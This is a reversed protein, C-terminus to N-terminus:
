VTINTQINPQTPTTHLSTPNEIGTGHPAAQYVAFVALTVSLNLAVKATVTAIHKRLAGCFAIELNVLCNGM